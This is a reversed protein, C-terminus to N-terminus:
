GDDKDEEFDPDEIIMDALVLLSLPLEYNCRRAAGLNVVVQFSNMVGIPIEGPAAEDDIIKLAIVVAQKGLIKYDIVVGAVAGAKTGKLSSSVLPVAHPNTAKLVEDMNKYILFDIPIWIAQVKSEILREVAPKIGALDETKEEVIEIPPAKPDKLYQRMGRLEAASVVGTKTSRLIGLRKLDPAALRFLNLVTEPQIWNSNGAINVGSGKWSSVIGSEVPNTVATFVIPIDTVEKAAILAAETGM